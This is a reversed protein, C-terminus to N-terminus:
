QICPKGGVHERERPLHLDCGIEGLPQDRPEGALLRWFVGITFRADVFQLRANGFSDSEDLLEFGCLDVARFLAIDADRKATLRSAELAFVVEDIEGHGIEIEMDGRGVRDQAMVAQIDTLAIVHATGALPGTEDPRINGAPILSVHFAKREDRAM